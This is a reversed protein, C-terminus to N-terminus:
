ASVEDETEPTTLWACWMFGSETPEVRYHYRFGRWRCPERYARAAARASARDEYVHGDSVEEGPPATVLWELLDPDRAQHNNHPTSRNAWWARVGFAALFGAIAWLLPKPLGPPGLENM